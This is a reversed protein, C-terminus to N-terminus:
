NENENNNNNNPEESDTDRGDGTNNKGVSQQRYHEFIAQKQRDFELNIRRFFWHSRQKKLTIVTSASEQERKLEVQAAREERVKKYDGKIFAERVEAQAERIQSAVKYRESIDEHVNFFPMTKALTGLNKRGLYPRVSIESWPKNEAKYLVTSSDQRRKATMVKNKTGERLQGYGTQEDFKKTHAAAAHDYLSTKITAFIFPIRKTPSYGMQIRGFRTDLKLLRDSGFFNEGIAREGYGEVRVHESFHNQEMHIPTTLRDITEKTEKASLVSRSM